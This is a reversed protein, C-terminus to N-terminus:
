QVARAADIRGAGYYPDRGAAGLDKATSLIRLRIASKSKGQAALLGALAAVHPSSFSTGSYYRYGGPVTSLINVGPAAVDVYSGYNSFPARRDNADTAAVAIVNSYAAPYDLTNSGSNGAAAVVVAGKNYAYDVANKLITAPEPGGLSLNIVKAGSEASWVIGDSIDSDFGGQDTLVKAVLLTCDPCGGAIGKSNNTKATAIGAVHTGHGSPEEQAVRDNGVFDRQAVIKGVIDPHSASIGTDVVAIRPARVVSNADSGDEKGWATRFGPKILGYQKSFNPDNVPYVFPKRLYDYSVSAVGPKGELAEKARKLAAKRAEGPRNDQVEPLAVVEADLAEIEDKVQGMVAEVVNEETAESANPEYKVILRAAAFTKGNENEVASGAPAKKETQGWAGAQSFLFSAVGLLTALVIMSLRLPFTM